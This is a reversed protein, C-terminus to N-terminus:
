TSPPADELCFSSESESFFGLGGGFFFSDSELFGNVIVPAGQARFVGGSFALAAGSLSLRKLAERRSFDDPM